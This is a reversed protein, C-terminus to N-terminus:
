HRKKDYNKGRKRKNSSASFWWQYRPMEEDFLIYRLYDDGRYSYYGSCGLSCYAAPMNVWAFQIAYQLLGLCATGTKMCSEIVSVYFTEYDTRNPHTRRFQFFLRCHNERWGSKYEKVNKYRLVSCLFIVFRIGIVVCVLALYSVKKIIGFIGKQKFTGLQVM